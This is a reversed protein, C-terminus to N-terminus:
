LTNGKEVSEGQIVPECQANPDLFLALYATGVDLTMQVRGSPTYHTPLPPTPAPMLMPAEIHFVAQDGGILPLLNGCTVNLLEKLADELQVGEPLEEDVDIGLMNAALPRLMNETIAIHMEGGFPGSFEVRAAYGWTPPSHHKSQAIEELEILLFALEGFTKEAVKFLLDNFNHTAHNSM